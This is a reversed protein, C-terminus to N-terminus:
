LKYKSKFYGELAMRNLPLVGSGKIAVIEAIDGNLCFTPEMPYSGIIDTSNNGDLDELTGMVGGPGVGSGQATLWIGFGVRDFGYSRAVNDNFTGGGNANAGGASGSLGPSMAVADNALFTILRYSGNQVRGFLLGYGVDTGTWAVNNFRAVMVISFDGAGWRLSPSDALTLRSCSGQNTFHIAPRANIVSPKWVPQLTADNQVAHNGNKTQDAWKTVAGQVMTVGKSAELWLVIGPLSLVDFGADAPGSEAEEVGADAPPDAPADIPDPSGTDAAETPVPSSCGFLMVIALKRM